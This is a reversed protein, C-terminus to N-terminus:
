SLCNALIIKFDIAVGLVDVNEVLGGTELISFTLDAALKVTNAVIQNHVRRERKCEFSAGVVPHVVYGPSSDLIVSAFIRM